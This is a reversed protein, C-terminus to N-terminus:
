AVEERHDLEFTRFILTLEPKVTLDSILAIGSPYRTQNTTWWPVLGTLRRIQGGASRDIERSGVTPISLSTNSKFEVSTGEVEKAVPFCVFFYKSHASRYKKSV